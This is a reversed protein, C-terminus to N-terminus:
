ASGAPAGLRSGDQRQERRWSQRAPARFQRRYAAPTMGVQATFLRRFSAPDAYGIHQMASTVTHGPSELLRKAANVRAQRLFNLPSQGTEDGFRRLMTRASVHFAQALVALDYPEALWGKASQVL